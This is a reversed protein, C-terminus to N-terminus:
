NMRPDLGDRLAEGLVNFGFSALIIALGPFTPIWWYEFVYSQGSALMAGWEPQPPQVGMGLFGLGAVTLVLRAMSLSIRTIVSPLCMPFVHYALIRLHSAGLMRIAAMYDSSRIRLSEARALRAIGPWMTLAIAIITAELGPRISASFALALMLMPFAFFVDTIRMLIVETWGGIYAAAMGVGLGIPAGIMAVLVPICLSLRTGYVLRSLLDRGFQDTGLWHEASPASLRVALNQEFPSHVVLFPGCLATASLLGLIVIGTTSGSKRRFRQWQLFFSRFHANRTSQPETDLLWCKWRKM